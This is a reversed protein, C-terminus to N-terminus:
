WDDNKASMNAEILRILRGVDQSELWVTGPGTLCVLCFGTGGFLVNKAGGGVSTMSYDVTHEFGVLAGQNVKLREGARLVKKIAVGGANLFAYGTGTLRQLVFGEGGVLGAGVTWGPRVKTRIRVCGSGEQLRKLALRELPWDRNQTKKARELHETYVRGLELTALPGISLAIASTNENIATVGDVADVSQKLLFHDVVSTKYTFATAIDIWRWCWRNESPNSPM